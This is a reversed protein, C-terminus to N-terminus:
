GLFGGFFVYGERVREGSRLREVHKGFRKEGISKIVKKIKKGFLTSKADVLRDSGGYLLVHYIASPDN